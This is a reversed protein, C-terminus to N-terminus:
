GDDPDRDDFARALDRSAHIVAVVIVKSPGSAVRYMLRYNGIVHQRYRAGPLEPIKQGM